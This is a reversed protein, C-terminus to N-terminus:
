RGLVCVSVVRWFPFFRCYYCSVCLLALFRFPSSVEPACGDAGVPLSEFGKYMNKGVVGAEEAAAEDGSSEHHESGPTGARQTAPSSCLPLSQHSVFLMLSNSQDLLTFLLHFPVHASIGLFM